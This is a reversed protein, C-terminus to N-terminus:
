FELVMQRLAPLVERSTTHKFGKPYKRQGYTPCALKCNESCYLRREGSNLNNIARLRGKVESYQPAYWRGCYACKVELVETDKRKRVDEYLELRDKYTDYRALGLEVTIWKYPRSHTLHPKDRRACSHSCFGNQRRKEVLYPNGCKACCEKYIYYVTGKVFSGNKILRVGELMDWCIKM